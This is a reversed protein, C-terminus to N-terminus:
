KLIENARKHIPVRETSENKNVNVSTPNKTKRNINPHFSCEELEKEELERKLKEKRERIREAERALRKETESNSVSRAKASRNLNPHFSCHDLM